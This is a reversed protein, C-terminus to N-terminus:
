STSGSRSQMKRKVANSAIGTALLGIVAAGVLIRGPRSAIFTYASHELVPGNRGSRTILKSPNPTSVNGEDAVAAKNQQSSIGVVKMILDYARPLLQGFASMGKSAGGAHLEATGHRAAHLIAKAVVEPAYVPPPLKPAFEVHKKAHEVFLTDTGAPKILSVRVPAGETALELRLCNTFGKVAHKSAVYTSQLQIPVDSLESGINILTGGRRRLHEVAVLSGYVTGWYNTAFLRHQEDTPTDKALGYISVGACNVWSDYRGFMRIAAQSAAKVDEEQGVDAVAYASRAGNGTLEANLSRLKNPSRAILFVNAGARAALRATALGIGSTAGTIVIVQQSLPKLKLTSIPM